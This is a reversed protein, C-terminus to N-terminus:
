DRLSKQIKVKKENRNRSFRWRFGFCFCFCMLWIYFQTGSYRYSVSVANSGFSRASTCSVQMAWRNFIVLYCTSNNIGWYSIGTLFAHPLSVALGRNLMKPIWWGAKWGGGWLVVRRSCNLDTWGGRELKLGTVRLEFFKKDMTLFLDRHWNRAEHKPRECAACVKCPKKCETSYLVSM